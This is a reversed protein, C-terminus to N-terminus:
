LRKSIVEWNGFIQFGIASFFASYYNEAFCINKVVSRALNEGARKKQPRIDFHELFCSDSSAVFESDFLRLRPIHAVSLLISIALM